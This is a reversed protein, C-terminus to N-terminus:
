SADPSQRLILHRWQKLRTDGLSGRNATGEWEDAVILGARGCLDIIEAREYYVFVRGERRVVVGRGPQFNIYLAGEGCLLRASEKLIALAESRPVHVLVSRLWVGAFSRAKFPLRGVDGMVLRPSPVRASALNQRASEIMGASADVGTWPVGLATFAGHHVAPGCGADLVGLEAAKPSQPLRRVFRAVMPDDSRGRWTRTFAKSVADNGIRNSRRVAAGFDLVPVGDSVDPAFREHDLLWTRFHAVNVREGESSDFIERAESASVLWARWSERQAQGIRFAEDIVRQELYVLSRPNPVDALGHLGDPVPTGGVPMVGDAPVCLLRMRGTGDSLELSMEFERGQENLFSTIVSRLFRVRDLDTAPLDALRAAGGHRPCRLATLEMRGAASPEARRSVLAFPPMALLIDFPALSCHGCESTYGHHEM